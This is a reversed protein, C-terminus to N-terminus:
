PLKPPVTVGLSATKSAIWKHGYAGIIIGVIFVAVIIGIVFWTM